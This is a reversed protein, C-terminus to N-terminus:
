HAENWTHGKHGDVVLPVKLRVAEQMARRGVELAHDAEAAPVELVLEDHVQLLIRAAPVEAKLARDADIMARKMIDAASGQIPTNIALREARSRLAGNKSDLDPLKRRRGLLTRVEREVHARELAESQWARIGGLREFYVDLYQKAEARKIGLERALRVVGMGYLLGFNIAKAATRQDKTVDEFSVKFIESATRRHVDLNNEFTEVFVPDGSVHALIRLEIQSYDLSVLLKGEEAVFADRIKRGLETRIPINQLNPDTSSLRGTAAVAQNFHTHVRGRADILQPLVDVYTGKLKSLTRHELILAPLDHKDALAELVSSDTSPGTATRKVIPLGLDKFLLEAIQKPSELNFPRGAVAHARQQIGALADAFDQSMSQLRATDVRIGAREMEGLLAELPLELDRYLPGLGEAEVRPELVDAIRLTCDVAECAWALQKDEAIQEFSLAAKGRGFLEDADIMPHGLFRRSLNTLTHAESDADLLYSALMPDGALRWTPYGAFFLANVDAKGEYAVIQRATDTLLPALAARLADEGLKATPLWVAEGGNWSLAVGLLRADPGPGKGLPSAVETRVAFRPAAGLETIVDRLGAHDEVLRYRSRDISVQVVPAEAPPPAGGFLDGQPAGDDGLLGPAAGPPLPEKAIPDHVLRRFEMEEFFARLAPRDPGNYSLDDLGLPLPVDDHIVVLSKSLRARDAQAKLKERRSPQKVDEAHALVNEVDGFANVLEAATKEGIGDVGPVNDSSDGALALVDAVLEPPVGFKEIVQQRHIESGEQGRGMRMEDLLSTREDVLQMLDKDGTIIVVDKGAAKAAKAMTALVDDAEWGPICVKKIRLTDVLRHILPIQPPLDEPPASRTGKYEPYLEHRFTKGGPDFAIAIHEPELEKLVKLLMTTFGFLANTAQGKSTTLRRMAYYARFIYGQGDVLYVVDRRPAAPPAAPPGELPLEGASPAGAAKKSAKKSAKKTSM